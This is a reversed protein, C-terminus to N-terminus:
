KLTFLLFVIVFSPISKYILIPIRMMHSPSNNERKGRRNNGIITKTTIASKRPIKTSFLLFDRSGNLIGHFAFFNNLSSLNVVTEYLWCSSAMLHCFPVNSSDNVNPFQRTTCGLFHRPWEWLPRMQLQKFPRFSDVFPSLLWRLLSIAVNVNVM